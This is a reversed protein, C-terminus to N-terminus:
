HECLTRHGNKLELVATIRNVGAYSWQRLQLHPAFKGFDGEVKPGYYVRDSSITKTVMSQSDPYISYADKSQLNRNEIVVQINQASYFVSVSCNQPGSTGQFGNGLLQRLEASAQSFPIDINGTNAAKANQTAFCITVFLILTKMSGNKVCRM